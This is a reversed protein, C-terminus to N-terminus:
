YKPTASQQNNKVLTIENSIHKIGYYDSIFIPFGSLVAVSSDLNIHKTLQCNFIELQSFLSTPISYNNEVLFNMKMLHMEIVHLWIEKTYKKFHKLKEEAENEVQQKYGINEKALVRLNKFDITSSIHKLAEVMPYSIYLKGYETEEDFFSLMGKLADDDANSAHGDYDFFLYIEAFDNRDYPALIDKNQPRNKLISFTDLDDDEYLKSYLQYVEGCFAFQVNISENIYFNTLNQTILGEIKAGEFVFLITNSM